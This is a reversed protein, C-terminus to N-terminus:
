TGTKRRVELLLKLTALGDHGSAGPAFIGNIRDVFARMENFYDDSYDGPAQTAETGISMRRADIDVGINQKEGAIWFERIRHPTAHDLLFTSRMGSDHQLIFNASSVDERASVCKAPGFLYLALDVEHAGTNLVVGDSTYKETTHACIFNSWLPEGIEGAGLWQKVQQVCPHLRLNNGMMIVLGKDDAIKLLGPLAGVQAAIPKEVLVHKGREICGRLGQEHFMTPTAIVVADCDEYINREFTVRENAPLVPDYILVEHGLTVLNRAHRGGISGYGVVGIKM